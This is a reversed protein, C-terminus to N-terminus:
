EVPPTTEHWTNGGDESRFLRSPCSGAFMVNGHLYFSWLQLDNMPSEVRRWNDAGDDSRFLGLESGLFLTRPQGPHVVLARVDCEVFTGDMARRFTEGSDLSRFVGEGITGVLLTHPTM